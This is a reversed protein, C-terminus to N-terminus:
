QVLPPLLVLLVLLVPLVLPVLIALSALLILLLLLVHSFLGSLQGRSSIVRDLHCRRTQFKLIEEEEEEKCLISLGPLSHGAARRGSVSIQQKLKVPLCSFSLLPQFRSARM